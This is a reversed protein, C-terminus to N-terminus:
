PAFPFDPLADPYRERFAAKGALIRERIMESEGGVQEILWDMGGLSAERWAQRQAPDLDHVFVNPNATIGAQIRAILGRVDARTQDVPDLAARISARTAEDLGRWWPANAVILGSDYAHGTLILHPAENAMGALAFMGVGSQGGEVLGTQLAPLLDTFPLVIQNMDLMRGFVRAGAARSTRMRRGQVSEPTLIPQSAYLHTWGVDAWQIITVNKEELLRSYPELLYHDLIFDLEAQSEFLYPALLLNLEPVLQSAGQLSLGAMQLRNRRLNAIMAEEPGFQSLIFLEINITDPHDRRANAAFDVWMQHWPTGPVTVATVRVRERTDAEGCGSLGLCIALLGALWLALRVGRRNPRISAAPGPHEPM